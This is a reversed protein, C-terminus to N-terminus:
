WIRNKPLEVKGARVHEEFLKFAFNHILKFGKREEELERIIGPVRSEDGGSRVEIETGLAQRVRYAQWSRPPRWSGPLNLSNLRQCEQWQEWISLIPADEKVKRLLEIGKRCADNYIDRGKHELQYGRMEGDGRVEAKREEKPAIKLTSV